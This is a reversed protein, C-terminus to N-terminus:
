NVKNCTFHVLFAANHQLGSLLGGDNLLLTTNKLKKMGAKNRDKKPLAYNDGMRGQDEFCHPHAPPLFNVACWRVPLANLVAKAYWYQLSGLGVTKVILTEGLMTVVPHGARNSSGRCLLAKAGQGTQVEVHVTFVSTNVACWNTGICVSNKNKTHTNCCILTCYDSWNKCHTCEIALITLIFMSIYMAEPLPKHRSHLCNVCSLTLPCLCSYIIYM